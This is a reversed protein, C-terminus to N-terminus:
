KSPRPIMKATFKKGNRGAFVATHVHPEQEPWLGRHCVECVMPASDEMLSRTSRVRETAIAAQEQLKHAEEMAADLRAKHEIYNMRNEEGTVMKAADPHNV